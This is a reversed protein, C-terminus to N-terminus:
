FLPFSYNMMFSVFCLLFLAAPQTTMICLVNDCLHFPLGAHRHDKNLSLLDQSESANSTTFILNSYSIGFTFRAGPQWGWWNVKGTEQRLVVAEHEQEM